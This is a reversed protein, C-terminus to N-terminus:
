AVTCGGCQKWFRRRRGSWTETDVPRESGRGWCGGHQRRGMPSLVRPVGHTHRRGADAWGHPGDEGPSLFIGDHPRVVTTPGCVRCGGGDKAQQPFPWWQPTHLCFERALVHGRPASRPRNSRERQGLRRRPGLAAHCTSSRKTPPRRPVASCAVHGAGSLCRRRLPPPEQPGRPRPGARWERYWRSLRPDALADTPCRTRRSFIALCVGGPKNPFSAGRPRPHCLGACLPTRAKSRPRRQRRQVQAPLTLLRGDKGEQHVAKRRGLPGRVEPIGRSRAPRTRADKVEDGPHTKGSAPSDAAVLALWSATLPGSAETCAVRRCFTLVSILQM